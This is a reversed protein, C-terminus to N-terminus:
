GVDGITGRRRARRWILITAVMISTLVAALAAHIIGFRSERRHVAPIERFSEVSSFLLDETEEESFAISRDALIKQVAEEMKSSFPLIFEMSCPSQLILPPYKKIALSTGMPIGIHENGKEIAILAPDTTFIHPPVGFNSRPLILKVRGSFEGKISKKVDVSLSGYESDRGYEDEYEIIDYHQISGVIIADAGRILELKFPMEVICANAPLPLLALIWALRRLFRCPTRDAVFRAFLQTEGQQGAM